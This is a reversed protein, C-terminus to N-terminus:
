FIKSLKELIEKLKKENIQAVKKIILNKELSVIKSVRIYSKKPLSGQFLNTNDITIELNKDGLKISTIGLIIFDNYKELTQNSIILALRLKFNQLDSYPFKVLIIDGQKFDNM